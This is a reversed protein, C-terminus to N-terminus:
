KIYKDWLYKKLSHCLKKGMWTQLFVEYNIKKHKYCMFQPIIQNCDRFINERTPFKRWCLECNPYESYEPSNVCSKLHRSCFESKSSSYRKRGCGFIICSQESHKKCMTGPIKRNWIKFYFESTEVWKSDDFYFTKLNKTNTQADSKVKKYPQVCNVEIFKIVKRKLPCKNVVCTCKKCFRYNTEDVDRTTKKKLTCNEQECAHEECFTTGAPICKGCKSM